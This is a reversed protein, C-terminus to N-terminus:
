DFTTGAGAGTFLIAEVPVRRDDHRRVVRANEVDTAIPEELRKIAAVGPRGGGIKVLCMSRLVSEIM